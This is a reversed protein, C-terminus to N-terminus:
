IQKKYGMSKSIRHACDMLLPLYKEKKKKYNGFFPISIAAIVESISNYIPAAIAYIGASDEQNDWAFGNKQIEELAEKLDKINTITNETYKIMQINPLTKDIYKKGEKTMSLLLKGAAGNYPPYVTGSDLTIRIAKKSEVSILPFVVDGRIISIKVMEGLSDSLNEILPLAINSLDLRKSVINGLTLLKAGLSYTGSKNDQELYGMGHLTNILRSVTAKPLNLKSCITAQSLSQHESALLDFILNMKNIAPVGSSNNIM